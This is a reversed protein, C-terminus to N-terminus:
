WSKREKAVFPLLGCCFNYDLNRLGYGSLEPWCAMDGQPGRRTDCCRACTFYPDFCHEQAAPPCTAPPQLHDMSPVMQAANFRVNVIGCCITFKIDGMWCSADGTPIARTDCCKDCTFQTDFCGGNALRKCVLSDGPASASVVKPGAAACLTLLFVAVNRRETRAATWLRVAGPVCGVRRSAM